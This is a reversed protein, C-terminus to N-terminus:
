KNEYQKLQAPLDCGNDRAWKLVELHGNIAANTYTYTYVNWHCGNDRAWKLIELHGNSAAHSCTMSDWHCGNHRAWKLVELHGNLAAYDCTVSNWDCGNNRAWKLVKLHGNLAAKACILYDGDYSCGNDLAWKLVELHGGYAAGYAIQNTYKENCNILIKAIGIHNNAACNFYIDPYGYLIENKNCIYREPILKSYGYYLMELTYGGVKTIRIPNRNDSLFETSHIM